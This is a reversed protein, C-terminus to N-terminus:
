ADRTALLSLGNFIVLLSAGMDAAVAMWLTVTGSMALVIFAAKVLLSLAINQKIVMLTRRSLRMVFPLKSLDDAMLAIDATELATDTGAAGMAIGMGAAAMAPADNVGDGVMAVRGYRATLDKIIDTKDEPMLEALYEDISLRRAIAEATGQNDGTLMVVREIGGAKLRKIAGDSEARVEDAIGIIGVARAGDSLIVATKGEKEFALM